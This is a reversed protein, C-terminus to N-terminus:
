ERARPTNAPTATSPEFKWLGAYWRDALVSLAADGPKPVATENQTEVPAPPAAPTEDALVGPRLLGPSCVAIILVVIGGFSRAVRNSFV